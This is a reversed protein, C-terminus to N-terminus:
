NTVSEDSKRKQREPTTRNHYYGWVGFCVFRFLSSRQVVEADKVVCECSRRRQCFCDFPLCYYGVDYLESIINGYTMSAQLQRTMGNRVHRGM